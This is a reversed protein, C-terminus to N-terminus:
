RWATSARCAAAPCATPAWRRSGAEFAAWFGLFPGFSFPFFIRDGARRARRPVRGELMRAAVALERQHRDLAAAPRHDVLDPLLATYRTSRARTLATGWPPNAAQDAVLEAKTTLPLTPSTTPLDCRSSASSRRRRAQPHLVRQPRASPAAARHAPTGARASLADRELCEEAPLSALRTVGGRKPARRGAFRARSRPPFPCPRCPSTRAYPERVRHDPTGTAIQRRRRADARLHLQMTAEDMAAVRICIEFEDEFRLPRHFDFSPTCARSASRPARPPPHQARGRALARAGGGGHLPLLLQFARHRGTPRTSSSAAACATARSLPSRTVAPYARDRNVTLHLPHRRARAPLLPPAAVDVRLLGEADPGGKGRRGPRLYGEARLSAIQEASATSSTRRRVQRPLLRAPDLGRKLQLVLERILGSRTPPGTPGASRCIEGRELAAGYTEWTDLNQMHVGNIHGFSAVGLGVMDAGQWLRDRYVFRTKSPDKVATYASGVHYGAAELAEFAEEVWRRKTPGTPWRSTSSGTGKLLDRSITTNFPLEMQYITVSDPQSSSRRACAPPGTRTRRAWCAPLSTSTSRPSASRARAGRLGQLGGALPPGPREAGPHPRRLERHGPEPADRGSGPSRRSSATPSRGRSASSRSRRPRTGRPSRGDASLRPGRAAPHLPVVAHRRRFLRLRAPPRRHGAAAPLAGVRAGPRRPLGRGRQANKDTYVRFYCFHCRKRCFPIHLYLGLPVDRAPATRARAPRRQDVAEETWVSFPPYNAVFYSGVETQDERTEEATEGM